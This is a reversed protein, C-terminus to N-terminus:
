NRGRRGGGGKVCVCVYVRASACEYRNFGLQRCVVEADHQDRSNDCASGWQGDIEVM